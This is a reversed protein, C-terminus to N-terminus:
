EGRASALLPDLIALKCYDHVNIPRMLHVNDSKRCCVCTFYNEVPVPALSPAAAPAAPEGSPPQVSRQWDQIWGRVVAQTAGGVIAQHLLYRRYQEVTCRNLENAVGVGIKNTQLAEFIQEDSRLLLLRGEVYTRKEGLQECLRDVDGGCDRELLQSFWVAEEAPNLDERFRNESYKVAELAADKTPFIRCPVVALGARKAAISRRHGAIVEYNPPVSVVILPQLLGKARIDAALEDLKHEDMTARSALDPELILGLPLDRAEVVVDRLNM